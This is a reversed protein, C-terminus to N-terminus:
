TPKALTKKLFNIAEDVIPSGDVGWFCHDAGAVRQLTVDCGKAKLTNYLAEGQEFPVLRDRDGYQLLM